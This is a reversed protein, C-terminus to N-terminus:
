PFFDFCRNHSSGFFFAPLEYVAVALRCNGCIDGKRGGKRHGPVGDEIYNLLSYAPIRCTGFGKLMSGANDGETADLASSIVQDSASEMM